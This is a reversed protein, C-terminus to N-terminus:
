DLNCLGQSSPFNVEDSGPFRSKLYSFLNPSIPQDMRVRFIRHLSDQLLRSPSPGIEDDLSRTSQICRLHGYLHCLGNALYQHQPQWALRDLYIKLIDDLLTLRDIRNPSLSFGVTRPRNGQPCRTFHVQLRQHGM